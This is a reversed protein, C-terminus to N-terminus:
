YTLLTDTYMSLDMPMHQIECHIVNFDFCFEVLNQPFFVVIGVVYFYWIVFMILWWSLVNLVMRIDFRSLIVIQCPKFSNVICNTVYFNELIQLPSPLGGFEGKCTLSSLNHHRWITIQTIFMPQILLMSCDHLDASSAAFNDASPWATKCSISSLGLGITEAM